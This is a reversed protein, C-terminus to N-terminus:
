RKKPMFMIGEYISMGGGLTFVMISVILAYYYIEKGHGFPHAEDAPRKSRKIGRLLLLSNACDVASHISESFMASSGSIRSAIFKVIAIALNALLAAYLPLKSQKTTPNQM